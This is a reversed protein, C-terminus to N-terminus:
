LLEQLQHHHEQAAMVELLQLEMLVQELQHTLVEVAEVAEVMQQKHLPVAVTIAKHRVQQHHIVLAELAAM